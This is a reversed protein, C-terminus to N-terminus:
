FSQPNKFAPWLWLTHFLNHHNIHLSTKWIWDNTMTKFTNLNKIERMQIPLMNFLKAGNCTFGLCKLKPKEPVKLDKNTISRLSYKEECINTWKMHIQESSSHRMINCTELLTHYVSIQNVSMMKIKESMKWILMIRYKLVMYRITALMLVDRNTVGWTVSQIWNTVHPRWFIFTTRIVLVDYM